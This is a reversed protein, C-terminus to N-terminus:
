RDSKLQHCPEHEHRNQETGEPLDSGRKPETGKGISPAQGLRDGTEKLRKDQYTPHFETEELKRM